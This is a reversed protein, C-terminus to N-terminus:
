EATETTKRTRTKRPAEEEDESYWESKPVVSGQKEPNHLVTIEDYGRSQLYNNKMMQQFEEISFSQTAEQDEYVKKRENNVRRNLYVHYMKSEDAYIEFTPCESAKIINKNLFTVQQDGTVPHLRM